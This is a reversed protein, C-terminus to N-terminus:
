YFFDIYEAVCPRVPTVNADAQTCPNKKLESSLFTDSM